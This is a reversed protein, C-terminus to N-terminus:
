LVLDKFNSQLNKGFLVTFSLPSNSINEKTTGINLKYDGIVRTLFTLLKFDLLDEVRVSVPLNSGLAINKVSLYNFNFANLLPSITNNYADKLVIQVYASEGSHFISKGDVWSAICKSVM